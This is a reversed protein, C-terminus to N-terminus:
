QQGGKTMSDREFEEIEKLQAQTLEMIEGGTKEMQALGCEICLFQSDPRNQRIELTSPSVLVLEGCRACKATLSGPVIYSARAVRCCIIYDPQMM